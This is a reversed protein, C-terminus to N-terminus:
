IKINELITAYFDILSEAIIKPNYKKSTELAGQQLQSHLHQDHAIEMIKQAMDYRDEILFGNYGNEIIDQQGPGHVALIPTGCAMAEALVLGQTDLFSPFLFLDAQSYHYLLEQKTPKHIFQVVSDSLNLTQYAYRRLNDYEIGYGVLKLHVNKHAQLIQMVDLIFTINKERTFRGVYLLQFLQADAYPKLQASHAIFIEQLGSPIVITSTQIAYSQLHQQIFNSPAIIGNMLRCSSLVKKIIIYRAISQPLPVYHAYGEYISHYTFVIPISLKRAIKLATSGLYFPHHTHLIDPKLEQIIRTMYYNPRWPVACHNKQYTFKLLSPIRLVYDPDDHAVGLFDLTIIFVEHGSKRLADVSANISSVVGGSYPTYNNTIFVIRV